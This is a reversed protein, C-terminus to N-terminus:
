DRAPRDGAEQELVWFAGGADHADRLRPHSSGQPNWLGLWEAQTQLSDTRWGRAEGWRQLDTFNVDATLDQQGMRRYIEDGELRMRRYYARLTGSLALRPPPAAVYGYDVTLMRGKCWLGSWKDLWDRWATHVEVRQGERLDSFMGWATSQLAGTEDDSIGMEGEGAPPGERVGLERWSGSRRIFCRCPFADALENSYILANGGTARLASAMDEHWAVRHGRLAKQQLERLPASTDVLHFDLRWRMWFPCARLVGRALAGTGPGVEIVPIRGKWGLEAARRRVWHAVGRALGDDLTASTSFDGRAGVDRIHFAYYGRGPEYLARAM